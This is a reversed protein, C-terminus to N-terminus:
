QVWRTFSSLPCRHPCLRGRLRPMLPFLDDSLLWTPLRHSANCQLFCPLPPIPLHPVLVLTSHWDLLLALPATHSYMHYQLLPFSLHRSLWSFLLYIRCAAKHWQAVALVSFDSKHLFQHRRGYSVLSDLLSWSM